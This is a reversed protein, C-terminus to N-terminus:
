KKKLFFFLNLFPIHIFCCDMLLIFLFIDLDELKVIKGEEVVRGGDGEGGGGGGGGM